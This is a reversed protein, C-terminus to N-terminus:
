GTKLGAAVLRAQEIKHSAGSGTAPSASEARSVCVLRMKGLVGDWTHARLYRWAGMNSPEEQVWRIETGEACGSLIEALEAEPFPYLQEMRVIPVTSKRKKKRAALLEYYVKGSCLIVHPIGDGCPVDPDPIVKQFAGGALDELSSVAKPHRLLSKPSMIVLPKRCPHVVQRRLAHFIQAPTTLNMVFINDDAALTLFRELRASSHEPGQGEFGHPLLLVLGSLRSWKDESTTVFQDIIVQASNAFDGFQAEWIVLAEPWELSYGYDFGLVSAESLPSNWIHCPAQDDALNELPVWTEDTEQDHLVAHRHSFTGRQGDQGSLRLRHGDTLLTAFALAEGAWWDLPTKGTAMTGRKKLLRRLKNNVKLHAPVTTLKELLERLRDEAVATIAPEADAGPGGLYGDWVGRFPKSGPADIEDGRRASELNRELKAQCTKAIEDADAQTLAGLAIM